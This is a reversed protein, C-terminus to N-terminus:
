SNSFREKTIRTMEARGLREIDQFHRENIGQDDKELPSVNNPIDPSQHEIQARDFGRSSAVNRPLTCPSRERDIKVFVCVYTYVPAVRHAGTSM